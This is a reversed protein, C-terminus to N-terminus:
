RGPSGRRLYVRVANQSLGLRRSIEARSIGAGAMEVVAERVEGPELPALRRLELV